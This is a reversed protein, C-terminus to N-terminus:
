PWASSRWGRGRGHKVVHFAAALGAVLVCSLAVVTLAATM